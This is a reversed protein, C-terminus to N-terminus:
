TSQYFEELALEVAAKVDPAIHRPLHDPITGRVYLGTEVLISRWNIGRESVWANAGQIDSAPNDGVMYTRTIAPADAGNLIGHWNCLAAEGYQFTLRTPKGCEHVNLMAAGRTHAAWLGQLAARFGGQAYRPLTHKSHFVLDPNCFYLPPQNDQGYGNNPLFKDGNKPSSTGVKGGESLLLDMTVQLELGMDRSSSWMLIAAIEIQGDENRPGDTKGHQLHYEQTIEDFPYITPDSALLDSATFVHKFGYARAVEKILHGTGGLVLISKDKYQNVLGRFPTHSLVVQEKRIPADLELEETLEEALSEEMEGGSNTLLIFPIKHKQLINLTEKAGPIVDPEKILSGDIDFAFSVNEVKTVTSPSSSM